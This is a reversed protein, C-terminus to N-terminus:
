VIYMSSQGISRGDVVEDDMEVHDSDNGSSDSKTTTTKRKQITFAWPTILKNRRGIEGGDLLVAIGGCQLKGGSQDDDELGARASLVSAALRKASFKKRRFGNSIGFQM